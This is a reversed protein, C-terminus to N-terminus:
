TAGGNYTPPLGLGTLSQTAIRDNAVNQPVGGPQLLGGPISDLAAPVPDVTGLAPSSTAVGLGPREADGSAYVRTPPGKTTTSPLMNGSGEGPIGDAGRRNVATTAVPTINSPVTAPNGDFGQDAIRIPNIINQPM